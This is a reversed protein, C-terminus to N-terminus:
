YPSALSILDSELLGIMNYLVFRSVRTIFMIVVSAVFSILVYEKALTATEPDTKM